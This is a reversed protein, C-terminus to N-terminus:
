PQFKPRPCQKSQGAEFIKPTFDKFLLLDILKELKENFLGGIKM